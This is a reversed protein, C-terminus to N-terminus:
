ALPPAGGAPPSAPAPINGPGAMVPPGGGPPGAPPGPPTGNGNPMGGSMLQQAHRELRAAVHDRMHKQAMDRGNNDMVQADPSQMFLALEHIHQDHDDDPMVDHYQGRLFGANEQWQPMPQPPPPPPPSLLPILTEGDPFLRFGQETLKSMVAIGVQPNMKLIPNQMCYQFLANHDDLRATKTRPDAAPVLRANPAFLQRGIPMQQGQQGEAVVSAIDDDDLFVSFCRWIKTLEHQFSERTTRALVTIPTMMQENLIQLGAKTQNSGPIQGSMMDASGAMVDKMGDLLKVLPVTTPDNEPPDLFMIAERIQAAPGDVEVVEGPQINVAGRQMRVQRSMFMPKANKLTVGDIHQCLITDVAKTLGFLMDGYGLGYFGDSPFCRYHTFFCIQRKRIPKPEPPPPPPPQPPAMPMAPAGGGPPGLLMPGGPPPLGQPEPPGLPAAPGVSSSAAVVGGLGQPGAEGASGEVAGGAEQAALYTKMAMSWQVFAQKERDFRRVDDPDDEERLSMRLIQRSWADVTIVVYHDGGDFAPHRTPADPLQWRCHQELVPRPMDEDDEDPTQGDIRDALQKFESDDDDGLGKAKDTNVYVGDAGYAKLDYTTMHHVMTYRPVDSMSPDQSRCKYAVVFDEIPVWDSRIKRYYAEWYTRRFSSGYAVMQHITDHLGQSMYPINYRTYSNGFSEAIAAAQTEEATAGIVTFVKGTIPWMMDFLRAGIQLAPGTLGPTRVNAAKHFPFNKAEAVLAYMKQIQELKRMREARSSKDREFRDIVKTVISKQEEETLFAALNARESATMEEPDPAAPAESDSPEESYADAEAEDQPEQEEAVSL